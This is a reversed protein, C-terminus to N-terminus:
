WNRGFENGIRKQILSGPCAPGRRLLFMKEIKDKDINKEKAMQELTKPDVKKM